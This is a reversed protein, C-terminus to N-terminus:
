SFVLGVSTFHLSTFHLWIFSFHDRLSRNIKIKIKKMRM